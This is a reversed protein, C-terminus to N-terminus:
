MTEQELNSEAEAVNIHIPKLSDGVKKKPQHLPWNFPGESDDVFTTPKKLWYEKTVAETAEEITEGRAMYHAFCILKTSDRVLIRKQMNYSSIELNSDLRQFLSRVLDLLLEEICKDITSNKPLFAHLTMTFNWFVDEDPHSTTGLLMGSDGSDRLMSISMNRDFLYRQSKDNKMRLVRGDVLFAQKRVYEALDSSFINEWDDNLTDTRYVLSKTFPMKVMIMDEAIAGKTMKYDVEM